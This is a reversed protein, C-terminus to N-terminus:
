RMFDPAMRSGLMSSHHPMMSDVVRVRQWDNRSDDSKM